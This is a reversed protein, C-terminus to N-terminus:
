HMGTLVYKTLAKREHHSHFTDRRTQYCTEHGAIVNDVQSGGETKATDRWDIAGGTRIADLLRPLTHLCKISTTGLSAESWSLHKAPDGLAQPVRQGYVYRAFGCRHIGAHETMDLQSLPLPLGHFRDSSYIQNRLPRSIPRSCQIAIQVSTHIRALQYLVSM